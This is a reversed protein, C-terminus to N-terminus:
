TPDASSMAASMSKVYIDYARGALQLASLTWSSDYTMANSNFEGTLYAGGLADASTADVDDALVALVTQSGDSAGALSKIYKGSATVRGILTGRKLVGQGSLVTIGHTVPQFPGAILQDPLYVNAVIGPASSNDGIPTASLTM